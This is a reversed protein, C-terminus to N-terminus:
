LLSKHIWIAAKSGDGMAIALQESHVTVDGAAWLNPVSTKQSRPEVIIHGNEAVEAGLQVALESRVHNGGFALFAKDSDIRQGDALEVGTFNVGTVFTQSVQQRIYRIGNGRLKRLDSDEIEGPEHEIYILEKTWYLLTMAMNAGAKGSGIVVALEGRVEYGDCDPCIFVSKGMCPRLKAFGPIRDKVGTALLLRKSYYHNGQENKISLKFGEETHFAHEVEKEMFAIGLREAQLKGTRRLVQGDTGEPWGLVNRYSRCMVSRGEAADLVLVKHEYRGLQIAAQLGAIGGGVIICDYLM